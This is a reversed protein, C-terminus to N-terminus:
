FDRIRPARIPKYMSAIRCPDVGAWYLLQMVCWRVFTFAFNRGEFRRSSTILVCSLTVFRGHVKLKRLLDLDEFIPFAAFGGAKEYAARRVFIGSDGYRLGIRALLPYLLNLFRAGYSEGDFRLAFNGAAVHPDALARVIVDAADSRPISDAHLFWIADGASARAGAAMQVGRGRETGIVRVGRSTAVQVTEDTSGGDVVVVEIGEPLAALTAGLSREENLAPIVVSLQV